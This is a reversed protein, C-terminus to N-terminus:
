GASDEDGGIIKPVAFFDGDRQPANQLVRELPLGPEVVDDRLVNHIPLAHAMPPVNSVDLQGIKNVYELITGLQHTFKEIEADTLHLRALKAVHRVDATTITTQSMSPTKVSVRAFSLFARRWVFGGSAM